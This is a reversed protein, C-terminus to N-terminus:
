LTGSDIYNNMQNTFIEITPQNQLQTVYKLNNIVKVLSKNYLGSFSLDINGESVPNQQSECEVHDTGDNHLLHNSTLVIMFM